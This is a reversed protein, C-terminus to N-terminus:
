EAGKELYLWRPSKVGRILVGNRSQIGKPLHLELIMSALGRNGDILAELEGILATNSREVYGFLVQDAGFATLRYSRWKREDSFDHSYFFDKEVYVRFDATTDAPRDRAFVEWDMPQYCVFTEWDVKAVGSEKLEVLVAEESQSPTLVRVLWFNAQQDITLPDLTTISVSGVPKFPVREYYGAMLCGVRGAHRSYGLMEEWSGAEFFRKVAGEIEDIVRMAGLEEMKDQELVSLSEEVLVTRREGASKLQFLSWGIGSVFLVAVLVIWGWPVSRKGEANGWAGDLDADTEQFEILSGLSPEISRMKMEEKTAAELRAEVKERGGVRVPPLELEEEAGDFNLRVYSTDDEPSEDVARLEFNKESKAMRGAILVEFAWRRLGESM